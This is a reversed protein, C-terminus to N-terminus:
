RRDGFFRLLILFLNIFDLYLQLAGMIAKKGAAESEEGEVYSLKIQQTDFATLGVFVLVGAISVIFQLGTSKLFINVISALIIGVLGMLLFGGLSTLDRRTSYGYLSMAGFTGATIFFVRAVSTSTYVLFVSALSLGMITSYIWFLAQATGFQLTHVRFSLFFVLAIPAIMVVYVLPPTLLIERLIPSTAVLFAALGTLGLGMAMYNYVSLMYARLGEDVQPRSIIHSDRKYELPM